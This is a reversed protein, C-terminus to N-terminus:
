ADDLDLEIDEKGDADVAVTVGVIRQTFGVNEYLAYVLDGLFYDRGYYSGPAQSARFSFRPKYATEVLRADGKADLGTSTSVDRADIFMEAHNIEDHQSSTRVNVTRGTGDGQGGVIMKTPENLRREDLGVSVVNARGLAFTVTGSRDTGPNVEVKVAQYDDIIGGFSISAISRAHFHFEGIDALEQLVSLCNKYAAAYDITPGTPAADFSVRDVTGGALSTFDLLRQVDPVMFNYTLVDSWIQAVTKSSWTSRNAVGSKFAVIERGILSLSSPIYLSVSKRGSTITERVNGRWIGDFDQYYDVGVADNTQGRFFLVASDLDLNSAAPHDRPLTLTGFGVENLRKTYSLSIFNDIVHDVGADPPATKVYYKFRM